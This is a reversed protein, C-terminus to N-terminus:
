FREISHTTRRSNFLLRDADRNHIFSESPLKAEAKTGSNNTEM